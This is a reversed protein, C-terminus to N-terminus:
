SNRDSPFNLYASPTDFGKEPIAEKTGTYKHLDRPVLREDRAKLQEPEHSMSAGVNALEGWHHRDLNMKWTAGKSWQTGTSIRWELSVVIEESVVPEEWRSELILHKIVTQKPLVAFTMFDSPALKKIWSFRNRSIGQAARGSIEWKVPITECNGPIPIKPFHLRLQVGTILIPRAGPNLFSVPLDFSSLYWCDRESKIPYIRHRLRGSLVIPRSGSFHSRWLSITSVVFAALAVSVPLLAIQQTTLM